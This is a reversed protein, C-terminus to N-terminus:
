GSPKEKAILARYKASLEPDDKLSDLMRANIESAATKMADAPSKENAQVLDLQEKMIQTTVDGNFFPSTDDAHAHEAIDKWVANDTEKPYKPNLFFAPSNNFRPFASMGDAQENVLNNYPAQSQYLLYELCEAAHPSFRNILTSRGYAHFARVKGVPSEMVGIDIDKYTRLQALWWRGGLAMAAHKAGFISMAGSGFGGATAMSADEVPTSSVHYKYVLDHMMQVAAIAAPSDVTCRTGDPSYVHAGFGAFFHAWNWWEFMFGYRIPHGQGDRITLKQALPIIEAWTWASKHAPIGLSRFLDKHYWIGDAAINTPVGYIRGNYLCTGLAGLYCDKTVDLGKAKLADTVDLAIGSLVYASLQFTSFCDFCDPGDGGISEVIVPQADGASPDIVMDIAPHTKNFLDVQEQRLNNSDSVRVVKAVGNAEAPPQIRWVVLTLALLFGLLLAFTARM